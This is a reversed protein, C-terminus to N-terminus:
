RWDIAGFSGMESVRQPTGDTLSVLFIGSAGSSAIVSGDPSWAIAADDVAL